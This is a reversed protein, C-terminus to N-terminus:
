EVLAVVDGMVVVIHGANRAWPIQKATGSLRQGAGLSIGDAAAFTLVGGPVPLTADALLSAALITEALPIPAAHRGAIRAILTGLGPMEAQEFGATEVAQWLADPWEGVEVRTFLEPTVHDAFLREASASLIDLEDSM